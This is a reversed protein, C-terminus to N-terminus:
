WFKQNVYNMTINKFSEAQSAYLSADSASSGAATAYNGAATKHQEAQAVQQQLAADSVPTVWAIGNTNDKVPM